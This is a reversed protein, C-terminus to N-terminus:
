LQIEKNTTTEDTEDTMEVSVDGFTSVPVSYIEGVILGVDLALRIEVTDNLVTTADRIGGPDAVRAAIGLLDLERNLQSTLYRQAKNALGRIEEPQQDPQQGYFYLRLTVRRANRHVLQAGDPDDPDDDVECYPNHPPGYIVASGPDIVHFTMFPYGPREGPDNEEVVHGPDLGCAAMVGGTPPTNPDTTGFVIQNVLDTLDPNTADSM